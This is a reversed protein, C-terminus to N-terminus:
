NAPFIVSPRFYAAPYKPDEAPESAATHVAPTASASGSTKEILTPDSFLVSPVFSSAPYQDEGAFAVSGVSAATFLSAAVLSKIIQM